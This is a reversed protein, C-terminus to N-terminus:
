VPRRPWRPWRARGNGDRLRGACRQQRPACPSRRAHHAGLGCPPGCRRRAHPARAATSRAAVRASRTTSRCSTALTTARLASTAVRLGDALNGRAVKSITARLITANFRVLVFSLHACSSQTFIFLRALIKRWIRARCIRAHLDLWVVSDQSVTRVVAGRTRVARVVVSDQTFTSESSLNKREPFFQCIQFFFGGGRM